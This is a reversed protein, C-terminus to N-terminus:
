REAGVASGGRVIEGPCGHISCSMAWVAGCRECKPPDDNTMGFPVTRTLQERCFRAARPCIPGLEQALREYELHSFGLLLSFTAVGPDRPTMTEACMGMLEDGSIRQGSERIGGLARDVAEGLRRVDDYGEAEVFTEDPVVKKKVTSGTRFNISAEVIEHQTRVLRIV